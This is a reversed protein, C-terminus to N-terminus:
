RYVNITRCELGESFLNSLFELVCNLGASVPDIKRSLCWSGWKRWGTKYHHLTGLRRSSELLDNKQDPLGEASYQQRVGEISSLSINSQSVTPTPKPKHRDLSKSFHYNSRTYVNEIVLHVMTPFAM